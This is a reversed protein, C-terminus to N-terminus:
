YGFKLSDFAVKFGTNITDPQYGSVMNKLVCRKRSLPVLAM